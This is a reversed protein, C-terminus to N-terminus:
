VFMHVCPLWSRFCHDRFMATIIQVPIEAPTEDQGRDGDVPDVNFSICVQVSIPRHLTDVINGCTSLCRWDM